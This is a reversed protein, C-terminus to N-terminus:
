SKRGCFRSGGSKYIVARGGVVVGGGGGGSGPGSLGFIGSDMSAQRPKQSGSKRRLADATKCPRDINEGVNCVVLYLKFADHELNTNGWRFSWGVDRRSILVIERLASHLGGFFLPIPDMGTTLRSGVGLEKRDIPGENIKM